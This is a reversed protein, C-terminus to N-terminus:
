SFDAINSHPISHNDDVFDNLGKCNGHRCDRKATQNMTGAANFVATAPKGVVRIPATAERNRALIKASTAVPVASRSPTLSGDLYTTLIHTKVAVATIKTNRGPTTAASHAESM